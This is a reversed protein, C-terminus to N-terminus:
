PFGGTVAPLKTELDVSIRKSDRDTVAKRALTPRPAREPHLRCEPGLLHPHNAAEAVERANRVLVIALLVDEM